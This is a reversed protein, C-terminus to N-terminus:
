TISANNHLYGHSGSDCEIILQERAGLLQGPNSFSGNQDPIRYLEQNANLAPPLEGRKTATILRRFSRRPAAARM